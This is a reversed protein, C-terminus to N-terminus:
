SSVSIDLSNAPILETVLRFFECGTYPLFLIIIIYVQLVTVSYDPKFMKSDISFVKPFNVTKKLHLYFYAIM